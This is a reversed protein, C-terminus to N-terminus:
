YNQNHETADIAPCSLSLPRIISWERRNCWLISRPCSLSSSLYTLV